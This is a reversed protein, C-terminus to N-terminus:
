KRPKPMTSFSSKDSCNSQSIRPKQADTCTGINAHLTNGEAICQEVGNRTGKMMTALDRAEKAPEMGIIKVTYVQRMDNVMSAFRVQKWIKQLNFQPRLKTEERLM